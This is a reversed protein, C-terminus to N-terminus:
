VRWGASGIPKTTPREDGVSKMSGANTAYAVSSWYVCSLLSSPTSRDFSDTSARWAASFAAEGAYLTVAPAGGVIRAWPAFSVM